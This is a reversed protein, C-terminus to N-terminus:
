YVLIDHDETIPAGWMLEEARLASLFYSVLRGVALLSCIVAPQSFILGLCSLIHFDYSVPGLFTLHM